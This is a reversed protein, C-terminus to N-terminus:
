SLMEIFSQLLFPVIFCSFAFPFFHLSHWPGKLFILYSFDSFFSSMLPIFIYQLPAQKSNSIKIRQLNKLNDNCVIKLTKKKERLSSFCIYSIEKLYGPKFHGLLKLYSVRKINNVM